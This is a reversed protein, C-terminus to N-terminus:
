SPGVGCCLSCWGFSHGAVGKVIFYGDHVSTVGIETQAFGDTYFVQVQCGAKLGVVNVRHGCNWAPVQTSEPSLCQGVGPFQDSGCTL